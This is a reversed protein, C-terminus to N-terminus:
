AAPAALLDEVSVAMVKALRARAPASGPKKGAEIENLYTVSVEAAAALARQTTGRHERWVKVPSEGALMRAVQAMPLYDARAAASGQEARRREGRSFPLAVIGRERSAPGTV